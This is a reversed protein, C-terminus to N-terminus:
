IEDNWECRGANCYATANEANNCEADIVINCGYLIAEDYLDYLYSPDYNINSTINGGCNMGDLHQTCQEDYSCEDLIDLEVDMMIQYDWCTFGSPLEQQPPSSNSGCLGMHSVAIGILMNRIM